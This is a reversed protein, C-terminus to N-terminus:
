NARNTTKWINERKTKERERQEHYIMLYRSTRDIHLTYKEIYRMNINM